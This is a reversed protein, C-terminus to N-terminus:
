KNLAKQAKERLELLELQFPHVDSHYIAQNIEIAFQYAQDAKQYEGREFFFNGLIRHTAAVAPQSLYSDGYVRQQMAIAEELKTIAEAQAGREWLILAQERLIRAIDFHEKSIAQFAQLSEELLTEAEEIRGLLRLAQGQYEMCIARQYEKTCKQPNQEIGQYLQNDDQEEFIMHARDFCNLAPGYQEKRFELMGQLFAIRGQIPHSWGQAWTAAKDLYIQGKKLDHETDVFYRAVTMALPISPSQEIVSLCHPLVRQFPRITDKQTPNYHAVAELQTLISLWRHGDRVQELTQHLLQHISFDGRKADYRILSHNQLERLIDGKIIPIEALSYIKKEELWCALLEEPINQHHLFSAEKLFELSLPHKSELLKLTTLYTAALSKPYRKRLEVWKIPNNASKEKLLESYHSFDIGPTEAIYHGALDIMLPLFDLQEALHQLDESRKQGTLKSLLVLADEQNKELEICAEPPCIGKDRCTILIAGGSKPIDAPVQPVDDFILLWGKEKELKAHVKERRRDPHEELIELSDGLKAYSHVLAEESSGDVWGIFAFDALHENAFSIALESKGIGGEGCIAAFNIGRAKQRALLRQKLIALEKARGIFDAHKTPLDVITPPSSKWFLLILPIALVVFLAAWKWGITKREEVVEDKVTSLFVAPM